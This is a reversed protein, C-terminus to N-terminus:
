VPFSISGFYGGVYHSMSDIAIFITCVPQSVQMPNINPPFENNILTM